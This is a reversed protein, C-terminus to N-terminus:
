LIGKAAEPRVGQVTTRRLLRREGGSFDTRAHNLCRNDWIVFDGPSWVHEYVFDANEAHDLLEDLIENGEDEPLGCLGFGGSMITMGDFLVDKLAEDPSNYIKKFNKKDM